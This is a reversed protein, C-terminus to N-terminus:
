AANENLSRPFHKSSHLAIKDNRTIASTNESDGGHSPGNAADNTMVQSSSGNILVSPDITPADQAIQRATIGPATTSDTMDIDM